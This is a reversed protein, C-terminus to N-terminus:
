FFRKKFADHRERAATLLRHFASEGRPAADVVRDGVVEIVHHLVNPKGIRLDFDVLRGPAAVLVTHEQV